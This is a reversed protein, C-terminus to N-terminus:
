SPLTFREGAQRLVQRTHDLTVQEMRKLQSALSADYVTDGVRVVLGGLLDENVETTLVVERGLLETLRATIRERLPNSLPYATQVQVEVRGRLADLQERAARAVARLCDLRGHKSLVKLFTLTLPSVRGGLARDLIPLRDEHSLRPTRLLLELKPIQPFLEDVLSTLEEVVTESQGAKEAAGLLARAYVTGLHQRGSDLTEHQRKTKAMDRHSRHGQDGPFSWPTGGVGTKGPTAARRVM